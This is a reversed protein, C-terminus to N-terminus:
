TLNSVSILYKSLKSRDFYEINIKKESTSTVMRAVAGKDNKPVKKIFTHYIYNIDTLKARSKKKYVGEKTTFFWEIPEDGIFISDCVLLEASPFITTKMNLLNNFTILIKEPHRLDNM